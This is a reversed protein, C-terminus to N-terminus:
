GPFLMRFIREILPKPPEVPQGMMDLPQGCHWCRQMIPSADRRCRPCAVIRLKWSDMDSPPIIRANVAEV